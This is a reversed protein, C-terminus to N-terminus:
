KSYEDLVKKYYVTKSHTDVKIIKYIGVFVYQGGDSASKVFTIRYPKNEYDSSESYFREISDEQYEESIEDKSVYNHYRREGDGVCEANKVYLNSQPIFWIDWGERSLAKSYPSRSTFKGSEVGFVRVLIDEYIRQPDTGYKGGRILKGDRHANAEFTKIGLTSQTDDSNKIKRPKRSRKIEEQQIRKKRSELYIMLEKNFEKDDYKIVDHKFDYSIEEGNIIAFLVANEFSDGEARTIVVRRTNNVLVEKGVLSEFNM